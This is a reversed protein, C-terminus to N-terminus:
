LLFLRGFYIYPCIDIWLLYKKNLIIKNAEIRKNIDMTYLPMVVIFSFVSVGFLLQFPTIESNMKEYYRLLLSGISFLNCIYM